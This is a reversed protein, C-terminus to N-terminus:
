TTNRSDGQEQWSRTNNINSLVKKTHGGAQRLRKKKHFFVNQSFTINRLIRFVHKQGLVMSVLIAGNKRDIEMRFRRLKFKRALHRQYMGNEVYIIHKKDNKIKLFDDFIIIKLIDPIDM